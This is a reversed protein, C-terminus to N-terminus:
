AYGEGWEMNYYEDQIEIPEDSQQSMFENAEGVMREFESMYFISKKAWEPQLHAFMGFMRSVAYYVPADHWEAQVESEEANEVMPAIAMYGRPAINRFKKIENLLNSVGKLTTGSQSVSGTLNIQLMVPMKKGLSYSQRDIQEATKLNDVANISDFLQCIKKIKNSQTHGIFHMTINERFPALEGTKWKNESDQLRSEGVCKIIGSNLLTKIDENAAYKTVALLDIDKSDLDAKECAARMKLMVSDLNNLIQHKEPTHIM